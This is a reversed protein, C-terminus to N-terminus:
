FRVSFKSPTTPLLCNAQQFGLFRALNETNRPRPLVKQQPRIGLLISFRAFNWPKLGATEQKFGLIRALNKDSSPLNRALLFSTGGPMPHKHIPHQPPYPSPLNVIVPFDRLPCVNKSGPFRRLLVLFRALYLNRPKWGATKSGGPARGAM